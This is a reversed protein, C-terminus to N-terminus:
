QGSDKPGTLKNYEHTIRPVNNNAGDRACAAMTSGGLMIGCLICWVAQFKKLKSWVAALITVALMIGGITLGIM